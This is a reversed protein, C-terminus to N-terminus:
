PKKAPRTMADLMRFEMTDYMVAGASTRIEIVVRETANEAKKPVRWTVTDRKSLRAGKPATILKFTLGADTTVMRPTYTWTSGCVPMTPASIVVVQAVDPETLLADLDLTLQRLKGDVPDIWLVYGELPAFVMRRTVEDANVRTGAPAAFQRHRVALPLARTPEAVYLHGSHDAGLALRSGIGPAFWASKAPVEFAHLTLSDGEIGYVGGQAWARRDDSVRVRGRIYGRYIWTGGDACAFWLSGSTDNTNNIASLDANAEYMDALGINPWELDRPLSALTTPDVVTTGGSGNPNSWTAIAMDDRDSGM